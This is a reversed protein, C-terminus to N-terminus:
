EQLTRSTQTLVKAHCIVSEFGCNPDMGLVNVLERLKVDDHAKADGSVSSYQTMLQQKEQKVFELMSNLEDRDDPHTEAIL